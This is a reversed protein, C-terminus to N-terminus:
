PYRIYLPVTHPWPHLGFGCTVSFYNRRYCTWKGDSPFFGRGMKAHVEPKLAQYQGGFDAVITELFTTDDFPPAEIQPQSRQASDVMPQQYLTSQARELNELARPTGSYQHRTPVDNMGALPLGMAGVSGRHLAYSGGYGNNRGMLAPIPNLAYGSSQTASPIVTPPQSYCRTYILWLKM